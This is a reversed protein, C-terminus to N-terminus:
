SLPILHQYSFGKPQSFNIVSATLPFFPNLAYLLSFSALLRCSVCLRQLFCWCFALTLLCVFYLMPLVEIHIRCSPYLCKLYIKNGAKPYEVLPSTAAFFRFAFIINFIAHKFCVSKRFDLAIQQLYFLCAM